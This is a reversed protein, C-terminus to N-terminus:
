MFNAPKRQAASVVLYALGGIVSCMAEPSREARDASSKIDNAEPHARLGAAGIAVLAGVPVLAAVAGVATVEGAAVWAGSMDM